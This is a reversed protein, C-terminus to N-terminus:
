HTNDCWIFLYMSGCFIVAFFINLILIKLPTKPNFLTSLFLIIGIIFLMSLIFKNNKKM